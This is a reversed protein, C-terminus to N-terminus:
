ASDYALSNGLTDCERSNETGNRARNYGRGSKTCAGECLSAITLPSEPIANRVYHKTVWLVQFHMMESMRSFAENIFAVRFQEETEYPSPNCRNRVSRNWLMCFSFLHLNLSSYTINRASEKNEQHGCIVMFMEVLIFMPSIYMRLKAM